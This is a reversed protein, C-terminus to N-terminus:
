KKRKMVKIKHSEISFLAQAAQIIESDVSANDSGQAVVVIGQIKPSAIQVVYPEKGQGNEILVTESGAQTSENIRQGGASDNEKTYDDKNDEDKLTKKEESTALTIMVDTKGIGDVRELIEKLRSEQQRVYEEMASAAVGEAAMESLGEDLVEDGEKKIASNGENKGVGSKDKDGGGFPVSSVVLFIGALLAIMLKPLGIQEKWKKLIEM